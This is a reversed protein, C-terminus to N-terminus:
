NGISASANGVYVASLLFPMLGRLYHLRAWFASQQQAEEKEGRAPFPFEDVALL